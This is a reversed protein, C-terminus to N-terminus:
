APPAADGPLPLLLDAEEVTFRLPPAFSSAGAPPPQYLDPYAKRALRPTTGLRDDGAGLCARLYRLALGEQWWLDHFFAHGGGHLLWVRTYPQAQARAALAISHPPPSEHDDLASVVLWPVSIQPLFCYHRAYQYLEALTTGYQSAADGLAEDPLRKVYRLWAQRAIGRRYGVDQAAWMSFGLACSVQRQADLGLATTAIAAGFSFGLLGVTSVNPRQRLSAALALADEAEKWGMTFPRESLRRSIGTGRQDLSAVHYGNAHLCLAMAVLAPTTKRQLWPPLIIVAPRPAANHHFGFVAALPTGDFSEWVTEVFPPEYATPLHATYDATGSYAPPYPDYPQTAEAALFADLDFADLDM